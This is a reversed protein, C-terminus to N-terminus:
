KTEIVSIEVRRNMARGEETNNDGVPVNEGYGKAIIRNGDIGKQVLYTRIASARKQSLQQNYAADGVNDTHADIEIRMSKDAILKDYLEDIAHKSDPTVIDKGSEFFVPMKWNNLKIRVIEIQLGIGLVNEGYNNMPITPNFKFVTDHRYININLAKGIPMRLTIFGLDDTVGEFNFVKDATSIKVKANSEALSDKDCVYIKFNADKQQSLAVFGIALSLLTLSLKRM